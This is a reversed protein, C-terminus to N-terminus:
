NRIKKYIQSFYVRLNECLCKSLSPSFADTTKPNPQWQQSLYIEALKTSGDICKPPFGAKLSINAFSQNFPFFLLKKIGYAEVIM